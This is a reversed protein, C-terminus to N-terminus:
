MSPNEPHPASTACDWRWSAAFKSTWLQYFLKEIFWIYRASRLKQSSQWTMHSYYRITMSDYWKSAVVTPYLVLPGFLKRDGKQKPPCPRVRKALSKDEWFALQSQTWAKWTKSLGLGAWKAIFNRSGSAMFFNNLQVMMQAHCKKRTKRLFLFRPWTGTGVRGSCTNQGWQM